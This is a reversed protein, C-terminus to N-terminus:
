RAPTRWDSHPNEIPPLGQINASVSAHVGLMNVSVLNAFPNDASAYYNARNFYPPLHWYLKYGM